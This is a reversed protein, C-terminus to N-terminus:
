NYHLPGPHSTPSPAPAHPAPMDIHNPIVRTRGSDDSSFRGSAVHRHSGPHVPEVLITPRPPAPEVLCPDDSDHLPSSLHSTPLPKSPLPHDRLSPMLPCPVDPMCHHSIPQRHLSSWVRRASAPLGPMLQRPAPIVLCPVDSTPRYSMLPRHSALPSPMVHRQPGPLRAFDSSAPLHAFAHRPSQSPTPM